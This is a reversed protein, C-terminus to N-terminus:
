ECDSYDGDIHHLGYRQLEALCTIYKDPDIARQAELCALFGMLFGLSHRKLDLNRESGSLLLLEDECDPYFSLLSWVTSLSEIM